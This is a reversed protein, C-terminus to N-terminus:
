EQCIKTILKEFAEPTKDIIVVEMGLRRAAGDEEERDGVVLFETIASAWNKEFARKMVIQYPIGESKEHGCEESCMIDDFYKEFGIKRIESKLKYLNSNSVLVVKIGRGCVEKLFHEAGERPYCNNLYTEFIERDISEAVKESIKKGLKEAIREEHIGLKHRQIDGQLERRLELRVQNSIMVYDNASMQVGNRAFIKAASDAITEYNTSTSCLTNGWDIVLVKFKWM